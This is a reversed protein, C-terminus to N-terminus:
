LDPAPFIAFCSGNAMHDESFSLNLNVEYDTDENQGARNVVDSDIKFEINKMSNIEVIGYFKTTTGSLNNIKEIQEVVDRKCKLLAYFMAPHKAKKFYVASHLLFISDNLKVIDAILLITLLRKPYDILKQDLQYTYTYISSDSKFLSDIHVAKSEHLIGRIHNLAKDNDSQEKLEKERENPKQQPSGCGVTIGLM